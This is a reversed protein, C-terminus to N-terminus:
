DHQEAVTPLMHVAGERIKEVMSFNEEQQSWTVNSSHTHIYGCAENDWEIRENPM